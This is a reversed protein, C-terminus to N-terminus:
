PELGSSSGSKGYTSVATSSGPKRAVSIPSLVGSGMTMWLRVVAGPGVDEFIVGEDGDLRIFRSDGASHRDFRCGWPCRSSRLLVQDGATLRPLDRPDNWVEWPPAPPGGESARACGAAAVAVTLLCPALALAIKRM